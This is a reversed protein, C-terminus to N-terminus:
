KQTWVGRDICEDMYEVLKKSRKGTVEEEVTNMREEKGESIAKDMAALMEAYEKPIGVQKMGQALEDETVRTHEIKRGLKASLLAAVDNYSYLEPGLLLFDTNRPVPDTLVRFATAAVDAVSIFPLRGDGTATIIQSTHLITLLHQQESLKEIIKTHTYTRLPRLVTWELNAESLYKGVPRM